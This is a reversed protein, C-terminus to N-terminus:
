RLYSALAAAIAPVVIHLFGGTQVVLQKRFRKPPNNAITLITKKHRRITAKHNPPIPINGEVLNILVERIASFLCEDFFDALVRARLTKSKINAIMELKGLCKKLNDSM